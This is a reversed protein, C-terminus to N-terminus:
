GHHTQLSTRRGKVGGPGGSCGRGRGALHVSPCPEPGRRRRRSGCTTAEPNWRRGFRAAGTGASRTASRGLLAPRVHLDSRACWRGPRRALRMPATDSPATHGLVNEGRACCSSLRRWRGTRHPSRTPSTGTSRQAGFTARGAPGPRERARTPSRRSAPSSGGGARPSWSASSPQPRHLVPVADDHGVGPGHVAAADDAGLLLLGVGGAAPRSSPQPARRAGPQRGPRPEAPLRRVARRCARRRRHGRGELAGTSARTCGAERM